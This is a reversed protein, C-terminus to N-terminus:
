MFYAIFPIILGITLFLYKFNVVPFHENRVVPFYEEYFTNKLTVWQEPCEIINSYTISKGSTGDNINKTMYTESKYYGFKKYYERVGVGAIINIKNYGHMQSVTEAVHLLLTGFGKHQVNNIDDSKQKTMRGYVHLERILASDKLTNFYIGNNNNNFRLRIFGYM